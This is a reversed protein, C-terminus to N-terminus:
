RAHPPLMPRISVRITKGMKPITYSAKQNADSDILSLDLNSTGWLCVMHLNGLLPITPPGPPLGPPRQGIKSFKALLLVALATFSLVILLLLSVM